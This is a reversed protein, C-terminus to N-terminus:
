SWDLTRAQAVWSTHELPNGASSGSRALFIGPYITTIKDAFRNAVFNGQSTRSDAGIVVGDEFRAAIVTTALAGYSTLLLFCGVCVLAM